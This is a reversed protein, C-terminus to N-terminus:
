RILSTKINKKALSSLVDPTFHLGATPAAVSGDNRAFVTQYRINDDESAERSIYPPLPIKGFHELVLAFTFQTPTWEFHILFTAEDREKMDAILKVSIGDIESELQLPGSKWRRANGVLCKWTCSHLQQFALQIDNTPAIPELCFIEIHAGSPKSFLLRAHVVRTENSILLSDSPLHSAINSFTDESIMNDKMILLKSNDRVALPFQAIQTAELPYDFDEIRINRITELM